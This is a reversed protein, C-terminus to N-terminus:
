IFRWSVRSDDETIAACHLTGEHVLFCLARLHPILERRANSCAALTDRTHRHPSAPISQLQRLADGAFFCHAEQADQPSGVTKIEFCERANKTHVRLRVRVQSRTMARQVMEYAESQKRAVEEIWEPSNPDIEPVKVKTKKGAKKSM